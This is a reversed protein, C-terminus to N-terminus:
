FMFLVTLFILAGVGMLTVTYPLIEKAKLGTIGLLPLAWFPQLMNTLQDGYALAMIAKPYSVGLETAAQIIIPGQVGWQGGGSPVFINVIGASVFTFFPFSFNSSINVFFDSFVTVLGSHNMLGMIGFYLPFQILIGSAGGIASDIAGLFSNINKHMLFCLALLLLNIFNPNIFGFGKSQYGTVILYITYSIMFGGVLLVLLRSYDLREAGQVTQEKDESEAKDKYLVFERAKLKRGVLYMFAPLILILLVTATINMSGFITDSPSISNPLESIQGESMIGQMISRLHGDEAVKIPASGSIGGHWVMLGSYGAAGILPYNLETGLRSSREGVKRAFIAGFILGLGWNFFAVLITLLTVVFAAKATTNCFNTAYQIFRDFPKSLAMVHGLVLMLMMQMAFVMLDGDWLGKEWFGVLEVARDLGSAESTTLFTALIFTLITLLVAITFPSPLVAKFAKEISNFIQM